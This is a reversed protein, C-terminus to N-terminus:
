AWLAPPIPAIETSVIGWVHDTKAPKITHTGTFSGFSPLVLGGKSQWFCPVRMSSSRPSSKSKIRIAPHIHGSFTFNKESGTAEHIMTFPGIKLDENHVEINWDAPPRGASVDHNGMILTIKLHPHADIWQKGRNLIAPTRGAPAHFFDGLIILSTAKSLACLSSLRALDEDMGGEPVPIGARRFTATKGL